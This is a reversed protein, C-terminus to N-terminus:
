RAGAGGGGFGGGAGFGGGGRRGSPSAVALTPKFLKPMERIVEAEIIKVGLRRMAEAVKDGVGLATGYVLWEEWISLDQPAYREILALDSLFRKFADWELKERYGTGRWRGFLTSPAAVAAVSQGILVASGVISEVAISTMYPLTAALTFSAFLLIASVLVLWGVRRRGSVVLKSAPRLDPKRLVYVLDRTLRSFETKDEKVREVVAEVTDRDLVGGSSLKRLVNLTRREYMDLEEGNFDLIRIVPEGDKSSIEIRGKMHLDLLTAYFGDEDFDLADRKFMLNVIWPKRERNPIFSLYEPVTVDKEVGHKVYVLILILPVALVMVRVGNRLGELLLYQITCVLNAQATTSRVDGVMEVFSDMSDLVTPKLLLEVELLEDGGSAGEVRVNEGRTVKFSPPHPYVDEVLSGPEVTFEVKLYPIHKDALKLNLHCLSGDYEVPPHLKFVYRVRYKGKEFRDPNFCGAENFEALSRIEQSYRDAWVVGRYDKVYKVTGEPPKVDLVEVYPYSLRDKSLPADWVRYLMRYKGSVRVEYLYDEVLTGDLYLTANYKEVVVDQSSLLSPISPSLILGILGLTFTFLLLLALQRTEGM